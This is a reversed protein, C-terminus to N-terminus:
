EGLAPNDEEGAVLPLGSSSIGELIRAYSHVEDDGLTSVLTWLNDSGAWWPSPQANLILDLHRTGHPDADAGNVEIRRDNMTTDLYAFTSCGDIFVVQYHEKNVTGKQGLARINKGLGSHGAYAIVDADASLEDYRTDFDSGISKLSSALLMTVELTGEGGGLKTTPATFTWDKWINITTEGESATGTPFEAQLKQQFAIFERVGIDSEDFSWSSDTGHVVVLRFVGDSWFRESEPRKNSTVHQSASVRATVDVADGEDIECGTAIPEFDYWFTEEGYKAKGCEGAYKANFASLGDEDVRTPMVVRYTEGLTRERPIAVPLRATYTVRDLGDARPEVSVGSLEAYAFRGHGGHVKDLEGSLYFLQSVIAKDRQATNDTRAMVVSTTFTLDHFTADNSTLNDIGAAPEDSGGCAALLTSLAAGLTV